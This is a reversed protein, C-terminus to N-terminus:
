IQYENKLHDAYHYVFEMVTPVGKDPDIRATYYAALDDLDAIRWAHKIANQMARTVSIPTKNYKAAIEDALNQRPAQITLWIADTLYKYGWVRPSIYVNNLEAHIRQIIREETQAPPETNTEQSNGSGYEKLIENKLERIFDLCYVESYDNQYKSIIYTNKYERARRQIVNSLNNTVILVFPKVGLRMQEMHRLVDLGSGRGRQLELDLIIAQPLHDQILECAKAADGTAGILSIDDLRDAYEAYARCIAPDDEVLLITLPPM